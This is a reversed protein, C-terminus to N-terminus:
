TERSYLVNDLKEVRSNWTAKVRIPLPIRKVVKSMTNYSIGLAEHIEASHMGALYLMQITRIEAETLEKIKRFKHRAKMMIAHQMNEAATVWELNGVHDNKKNLDKHNAHLKEKPGVFSELVIWRMPKGKYSRYGQPDWNIYLEEGEYSWIRGDESVLVGLQEGNCIAEVKKM